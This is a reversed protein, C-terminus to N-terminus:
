VYRAGRPEWPRGAVERTGHPADPLAEVRPGRGRAGPLGARRQSWEEDFRRGADPGELGRVDDRVEERGDPGRIRTVTRGRGDMGREVTVAETGRVGDRVREEREFTGDPARRATSRSERVAGDPGSSYSYSYSQVSAGPPANMGMEMGRGFFGHFLGGMPDRPGRAADLASGDFEQRTRARGRGGSHSPGHASNDYSGRHAYDDPEEVLPRPGRSDHQVHEGEGLEEIVPGELRQPARRRDDQLRQRQLPRGHGDHRAFGMMSEMERQMRDMEGFPDRFFPDNFMRGFPSGGFPGGGGGFM